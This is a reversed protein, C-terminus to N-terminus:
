VVTITINRANLLAPGWLGERMLYERAAWRAFRKNPADVDFMFNLKGHLHYVKVRWRKVTPIM